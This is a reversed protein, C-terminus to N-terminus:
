TQNEIINVLKEVRKYDSKNKIIYNLHYPQGNHTFKIENNGGHHIGFLERPKGAYEDVYIILDKLESFPLVADDLKFSTESIIFKSGRDGYATIGMYKDDYNKMQIIAVILAITGFISLGIGLIGVAFMYIVAGIAALIGINYLLRKLRKKKSKHFIYTTYEDMVTTFSLLRIFM